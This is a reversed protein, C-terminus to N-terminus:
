RQKLFLDTLIFHQKHSLLCFSHEPSLYASCTQVCYKFSFETSSTETKNNGQKPLSQHEPLGHVQPVGPLGHHAQYGRVQQVRQVQQSNMSYKRYHCQENLHRKVYELLAFDSHWETSFGNTKRKEVCPPGPDSPEGPALPDGTLIM